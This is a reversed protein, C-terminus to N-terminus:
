VQHVFFMSFGLATLALGFTRTVYLAFARRDREAALGPRQEAGTREQERLQRALLNVGATGHHDDIVAHGANIELRFAILLVVLGALGIALFGIRDVLILFAVGALLIGLFAAATAFHRRGLTPM